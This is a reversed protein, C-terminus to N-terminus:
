NSLIVKNNAPFDEFNQEGWISSYYGVRWSDNLNYVMVGIDPSIFLVVWIDNNFTVYKKLCPYVSKSKM